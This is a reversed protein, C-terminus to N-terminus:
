EAAERAKLCRKKSEVAKITRNLEEAIAGNSYGAALYRELLQMEEEDWRRGDTRPRSAGTDVPPVPVGLQAMLDTIATIVGADGSKRQALIKRQAHLITTHDRNMRRGIQPLSFPTAITAVYMTIQRYHVLPWRRRESILDIYSIKFYEAAVTMLTRVDSCVPPPQSIEPAPPVDVTM